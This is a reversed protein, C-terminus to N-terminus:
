VFHSYAFLPTYAFYAFCSYTFHLQCFPSLCFLTPSHSYTFHSCAFHSFIEDLCLCNSFLIFNSYFTWVVNMLNSRLEVGLVVFYADMSVAWESYLEQDIYYAHLHQHNVSALACLSNFGIRFGRFIDFCTM